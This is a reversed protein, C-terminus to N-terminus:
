HSARKKLWRMVGGVVPLKKTSIKLPMGGPLRPRWATVPGPSCRVGCPHRGSDGARHRTFSPQVPLRFEWTLFCQPGQVVRKWRPRVKASRAGCVHPQLHAPHRAAWHQVTTQVSRQLAGRRCLDQPLEAVTDPTIHEFFIWWGSCWASQHSEANSQQTSMLHRATGACFVLPGAAPAAAADVLYVAESLHIQFRGKAWGKVM